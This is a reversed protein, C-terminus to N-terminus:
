FFTPDLSTLISSHCLARTSTSKGLLSSSPQSRMLCCCCCRASKHLPLMSQFNHTQERSVQCLGCKSHRWAVMCALPESVSVFQEKWRLSSACLVEVCSGPCSFTWDCSAGQTWIPRKMRNREVSKSLEWQAREQWASDKDSEQLMQNIVWDVSYWPQSPGQFDDALLVSIRTSSPEHGPTGIHKMESEDPSSDPLLLEYIKM